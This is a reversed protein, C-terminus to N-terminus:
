VNTKHPVASGSCMSRTHTDYSTKRPVYIGQTAVYATRRGRTNSTALKIRPPSSSKRENADYLYSEPAKARHLNVAFGNSICHRHRWQLQIKDVAALIHGNPLELLMVAIRQDNHYYIIRQPNRAVSSKVRM